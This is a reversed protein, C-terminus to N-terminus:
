RFKSRVFWKDNLSFSLNLNLYNEQILNASTTGKKGYEIGLNFNSLSATIPLGIGLTVGVDNISTSNIILGTKEYKFGGRFTIRKGYSVYSGSDPTYYGGISYKQRKGYEVNSKSNYSNTLEGVAQIAVEAGFLWKKSDGIGAGFAIKQPLKLDTTTKSEDLNDVTQSTNNITSVNRTNNSRLNSEPTYYLSSFFTLKENIKTNYMMGVDYNIGSLTAANSELTGNQINPAFEVSNTKIQGFNYNAKVGVNFNSNVKYGFGLFVKNVGGWGNYSRSNQTGNTNIDNIRYGVSSLPMLGFAAGFKGLPIGLTIYDLTTRNTKASADNSKLTAHNSSGGITFNTWKLDALGAPNLLNVHTSDKSISIGGMSRSELTGNFKAEGIGYFSYPSSTGDQAFSVVSLFLCAGIIFKRIM